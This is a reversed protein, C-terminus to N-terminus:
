RETPEGPRTLSCNDCYQGNKTRFWLCCSARDWYWGQDQHGALQTTFKGVGEFWPESADVFETARERVQGSDGVALFAVACGAAINGWLLREGITFANHMAAVFPQFHAGVLDHALQNADTPHVAPNLYAVATPRPKDIKVAVADPAVDPGPLGLAYAALAVGAVRFAYAEAFLSAAVADDDTEFGSKTARVVPAPDAIVAACSVWHESGDVASVALFPVCLAVADFVEDRM